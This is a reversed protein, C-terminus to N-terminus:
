YIHSHSCRREAYLSLNERELIFLNAFNLVACSRNSSPRRETFECRFSYKAANGLGVISFRGEDVRGNLNSYDNNHKFIYVSAM